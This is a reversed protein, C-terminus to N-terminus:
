TTRKLKHRVFSSVAESVNAPEKKEEEQERQKPTTQGSPVGSKFQKFVYVIGAIAIILIIVNLLMRLMKMFSSFFGQETPVVGSTQPVPPPTIQPAPKSPVVPQAPPHPVQPAAGQVPQQQPVAEAPAPQQVAAPAAQASPPPLTVNDSCKGCNFQSILSFVLCIAIILFKGYLKM